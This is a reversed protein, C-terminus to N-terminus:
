DFDALATQSPEVIKVGILQGQELTFLDNYKEIRKLDVELTLIIKEMDKGTEPDKISGVFKLRSFNKTKLEVDGYKQERELEFDHEM